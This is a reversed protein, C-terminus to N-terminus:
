GPQAHRVGFFGSRGPRARAGDEDAHLQWVHRVDLVRRIEGLEPPEDV